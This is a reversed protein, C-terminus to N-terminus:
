QRVIATRRMRAGQFALRDAESNGYSEGTHSKVWKFLTRSGHEEREVMKKRIEKVLDKNAAPYGSRNLWGNEGWTIYWVTVCSISYKSDTVILVDQHM